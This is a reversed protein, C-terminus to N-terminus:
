YNNDCLPHLNYIYIYIYINLLIKKLIALYAIGSCHIGDSSLEFGSKCECTYSGNNNICIHECNDTALDCENIDLSIITGM